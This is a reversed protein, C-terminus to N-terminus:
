LRRAFAAAPERAVVYSPRQLEARPRQGIWGGVVGLKVEHWDGEIPVGDLHRDRYRVMVGDTEVVLTGPTPEYETAPPEHQAEVHARLARQQGELATGVREAQLRLTETGVQVGSFEALLRSAESFTTIAGLLAEWAALGASTQQHPALGLARDSPSWGQGCARCHHWAREIRVAGLRTQLQRKRGSQV